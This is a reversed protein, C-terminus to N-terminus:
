NKVKKGMTIYTTLISEIAEIKDETSFISKVLPHKWKNTSQTHNKNYKEIFIKIENYTRNM